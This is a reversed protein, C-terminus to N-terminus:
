RFLGRKQPQEEQQRKMEEARLREATDKYWVAGNVKLNYILDRFDNKMQQDNLLAGLLGKSDSVSAAAVAFSDAAKKISQLSEDASTM